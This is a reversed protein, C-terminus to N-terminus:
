ERALKVVHRAGPVRVECFWTGASTPRGAEDTGDWCLRLEGPEFRGSALRRVVRGAVDLVRAEVIGAREVVFRIETQRSSPNPVAKIDSGVAPTGEGALATLGPEPGLWCYSVGVDAGDDQQDFLIYYDNSPHAAVWDEIDFTTLAHANVTHFQGVYHGTDAAATNWWGVHFHPDSNPDIVGQRSTAIWVKVDCGGSAQSYQHIVNLYMPHAPARTFALSARGEGYRYGTNPFFDWGGFCASFGTSSSDLGVPQAAATALAALSAFLLGMLKM